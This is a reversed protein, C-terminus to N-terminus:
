VHNKAAFPNIELPPSFRMCTSDQFVKKKSRTFLSKYQVFSHPERPDAPFNIIAGKNQMTKTYNSASFITICRSFHNHRFGENAVEHSRVLLRLDNAKLFAHTVRFGFLIGEGRSSPSFPADQPIIDSPDSWLLHGMVSSKVKPKFRDLQNIQDITVPDPPLGGHVIFVGREPIVTALPLSDFLHTFEKIMEDKESPYKRTLEDMFGYRRNMREDEHNGRNIYISNPNAIKGALLIISIEVSNMGRDVIDGNFIYRHTSSPVGNVAFITYLDEIQGHLDGVVTTMVGMGDTEPECEISRLTRELEIDSTDLRNSFQDQTESELPDVFYNEYDEYEDFNSLGTSNLTTEREIKLMWPVASVAEDNEIFFEHDTSKLDFKFNLTKEQGDSVMDLVKQNLDSKSAMPLEVVNPEKEFLQRSRRLILKVLDVPIIKGDKSLKLLGRLIREDIELDEPFENFSMIYDADNKDVNGESDSTSSDEESGQDDDSPKFNLDFDNRYTLTRRNTHRNSTGRLQEISPNYLISDDPDMRDSRYQVEFAEDSYYLSDDYNLEESFNQNFPDFDYNSIEYKSIEPINELDEEAEEPDSTPVLGGAEQLHELIQNEGELQDYFYNTIIQPDSNLLNQNLDSSHNEEVDKLNNGIEKVAILTDSVPKEEDATENPTKIKFNSDDEHLNFPQLDSMKPEENDVSVIDLNSMSEKLPDLNNSACDQLIETEKSALNNVSDEYVNGDVVNVGLESNPDFIETITENFNFEDKNDEQVKHDENKDLEEDNQNEHGKFSQIENLNGEFQSTVMSETDFNEFGSRSGDISKFKNKLNIVISITISNLDDTERLSSEEHTAPPQFEQNQFDAIQLNPVMQLKDQSSDLNILISKQDKDSFEYKREVNIDGHKQAKILVDDFEMMGSEDERESSLNIVISLSPVFALATKVM